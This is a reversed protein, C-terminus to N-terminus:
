GGLVAELEDLSQIEHHPAGGDATAAGAHIGAGRNVWVSTWGLANPAVFDKAPNDGVYVMRDAPQRDLAAEMLEFAKPHPKFFARGDGLADTYVIRSFRSELALARVKKMQMIHTGDTILGIPGGAEYRAIARAADEFMSLDGPALDSTRYAAILGEVHEPSHDPMRRELVIRFLRGLHGQDLLRTMDDELGSLGLEARAWNAASRFGAIAFQREPYLTDDLDFVLKLRAM